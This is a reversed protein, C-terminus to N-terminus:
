AAKKFAMGLNATMNGPLTVMTLEEFEHQSIGARRAHGMLKALLRGLKEYDVPKGPGHECELYAERIDEIYRSRITELFSEKTM